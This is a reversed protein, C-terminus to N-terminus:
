VRPPNQFLGFAEEFAHVLNLVRGEEFLKGVLQVGVPLGGVLGSPISISPFGVYNFPLTLRNMAHYVQIERGNLIVTGEGILPAPICTTPVAIYDVNKMSRLFGEIVAPRANIAAVYDVARVENGAELLRLVDDGYLQPSSKLWRLHFATAEARRVPLWLDYSQSAGQLEVDSTAIGLESFRRLFAEFNSEVSPDLLDHFYTRPVGVRLGSVSRNLGSIYDPVAEASTTVDGEEHGSISQLLAAADWASRTLTGVTDLSSALPVVGLRSVRGYTPKLGLIGCLAAPIRVSGATDTGLAAPALGEAVCAASGGSSGGSIRELDWPNRVPGFHPNVNTVGAAFEHMNNTGIIVAGAAQLLRVVSSDYEPVFGSLIRSGATCRVGKIYFIDKVAVPVGDLPGVPHGAKIRAESEGAARM